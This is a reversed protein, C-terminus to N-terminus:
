DEKNTLTAVPEGNMVKGAERTVLNYKECNTVIVPTVIDYGEKILMERDFEMILEGATVHDGAHIIPNFPAGNLKVTDLGVHILLEIGNDCEFSIAHKTDFIDVIKANAPAYLQGKDPIVAFGEGLIDQSFVDDNVSSLPILEGSLPSILSYSNHNSNTTIDSVGDKKSTSASSYKNFVIYAVSLLAIFLVGFLAGFGIFNWFNNTDM